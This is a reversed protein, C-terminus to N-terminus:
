KPWTTRDYLHENNHSMKKFIPIYKMLTNYNHEIDNKCREHLDHIKNTRILTHVIDFVHDVRHVGIDDDYDLGFVNQFFKFKPIAQSFEYITPDNNEEAIKKYIKSVNEIDLMKKIAHKGAILMFPRRYLMPRIIKESFTLVDDATSTEFVLELAIKKYVNEWDKYLMSGVIPPTCVQDIDSYPKIALVESFKSDTECLYELLEPTDIQHALNHHFSTLGQDRFEFNLHRVVGRIREATARGLFMGYTKSRDWQSQATPIRALETAWHFSAVVQINYEQHKEFLNSTKITIDKPNWNWFNCLEDLFKYLGSQTCSRSEKSTLVVKNHQQMAKVIKSALEAPYFIETEGWHKQLDITM